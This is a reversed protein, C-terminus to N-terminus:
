RQASTRRGALADEPDVGVQKAIRKAMDQHEQLIPIGQNVLRRVPASHAARGEKRWYNLYDQHNQIMLTIYGRDFAAGSLKELRELKVRHNPGMGSKHGMGNRAAMDSWQKLMASHDEEMRKGLRKVADNRGKEEALRGLRVELFHGADVDRLFEADARINGQGARDEDNQRDPSPNQNAVTTTNAGVQSAVQQALSLHERLSPLSREVLQRVETSQAARGRTQFTNVNDQHNQVMAAMYARDFEASSLRELNALQAQNSASLSASIRLGNRSTVGAWESRMSSHDTTMRQAFAKVRQDAARGQALQALRIEAISGAEVESIFASDARVSGPTTQGPQTTPWPQTTAVDGAGVQSGVQQALTLNSRLTALNQDILAQVEASQGARARENQFASVNDRHDQIVVAMYNRDFEAGSLGNLRNFQEVQQPTLDAKFPVHYKSALSMWQRQMAAHENVMTQGFQKVSPNTAKKEATQGLRVELLNAAALHSLFQQDIATVQTPEQAQLTNVHGAGFAIVLGGAAGAILRRMSM